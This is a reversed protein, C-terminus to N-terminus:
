CYKRIYAQILQNYALMIQRMARNDVDFQRDGILRVPLVKPSTGSIFAADFEALSDVDVAQEIVQLGLKRCCQMVKQRTVGELVMSTPATYLTGSKILFVNSRSGETIKGEQNVLLVESLNAVEMQQNAMNRLDSQVVKANPNNREAFLLDTCVGNIYEQPEPYRHHIYRYIWSIQGKSASCTFKVNGITQKNSSILENIHMKFEALSLRYNLGQLRVSNTLRAYHDEAFLAVGEIVRLVEYVSNETDSSTESYEDASILGESTVILKMDKLVQLRVRFSFPTEILSIRHLWFLNNACSFFYM